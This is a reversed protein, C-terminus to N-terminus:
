PDIGLNRATPSLAVSGGAPQTHLVRDGLSTTVGFWYHENRFHHRRHQARRRRLWGHRPRYATHILLHTWEYALLSAYAASLGSLMPRLRGRRGPVVAALAGATVAWGVAYDRAYRPAVLVFDVDAPERHHRRHAAGLDVAHGRVAFPRAHLVERHILWEAFPRAVLVAGVAAVDRRGWRALAARAIVTTAAAGVFIRPSSRSAFLGAAQRLSRVASLEHMSADM